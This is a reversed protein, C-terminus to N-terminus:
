RRSVLRTEDATQFMGALLRVVTNMSRAAPKSGFLQQMVNPLAL